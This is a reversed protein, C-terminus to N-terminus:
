RISLKKSWAQVSPMKSMSRLVQSIYYPLLPRANESLDHALAAMMYSKGVGFDGYLYIGKQYEPYNAVFNALEEFAEFRGKDDLEVKALSAEKM